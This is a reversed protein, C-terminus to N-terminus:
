GQGAEAKDANVQDELNNRKRGAYAIYSLGISIFYLLIMPAMVLGQNIPDITPTVMAAVIAILVIALRWQQALVQPQIIGIASLVYIILPFEFSVGIWFMLGIVFSFYSEPRLETKVGMFGELFPLAAPLMLFFTFAAGCLFLIAALPIGALGMKRERSRLGPAAFLWLEFAIYPIALAIGCMLAVRMFVSITETVEIAKLNGLGGVPGALFEIVKNTFFFSISVTLVLSLIARLLHMRLAEVQDWLMQRTDADTVLNAFVETIPHEEPETNLFQNFQRIKRFPFALINFVLRFPFTIVKWVGSLFNRM